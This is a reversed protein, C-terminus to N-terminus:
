QVDAAQFVAYSASSTLAVQRRKGSFFVKSILAKQMGWHRSGSRGLLYGEFRSRSNVINLFDSTTTPAIGPPYSM